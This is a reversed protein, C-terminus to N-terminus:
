SWKMIDAVKSHLELALKTHGSVLPHEGDAFDDANLFAGQQNVPLFYIKKDGAEQLNAVAKAILERAATGSDYPVPEMCIIVADPNKARIGQVLEMYGRIFIDAEPPRRSEFDNAGQNVVILQPKFLSGHRIDKADGYLIQDYDALAHTSTGSGDEELNTVVGEGSTAVVSWDAKLLRALQPGFAMYGNEQELYKGPGEAFAGALVSDGVFEIRRASGPEAPTLRGGRELVFGTLTSIGAAGETDRVLLLQHKGSSLSEALVMQGKSSTFREFPGGDISARWWVDEDQLKLALYSGTFGVRLYSAGRGTRAAEAVSFDWRGYYQVAQNAAAVEHKGADAFSPAAALTKVTKKVPTKTKKAKPLNKEATQVTGLELTGPTSACVRTKLPALANKLAGTLQCVLGTEGAKCSDVATTKAWVINPLFQCLLSCLLGVVMIKKLM